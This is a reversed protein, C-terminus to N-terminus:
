LDTFPLVPASCASGYNRDPGDFTIAEMIRAFDYAAANSIENAFIPLAFVSINSVEGITLSSCISLALTSRGDDLLSSESYNAQAHRYVRSRHLQEEFASLRPPEGHGSKQSTPGPFPVLESRKSVASPTQSLVSPVSRISPSKHSQTVSKSSAALGSRHSSRPWSTHELNRLRASLDKNVSLLLDVQGCLRDM